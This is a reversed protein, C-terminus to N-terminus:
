KKITVKFVNKKGDTQVNVLYIGESLKDVPVSGSICSSAYVTRGSLDTISVYEANGKIYIMDTAPNPYVIVSGPDTDTNEINEPDDMNVFYTIIEPAAPSYFTGMLIRGNASPTVDGVILSDTVVIHEGSMLDDYEYSFTFFPKLDVFGNTKQKVWEAMDIVDDTGAPIVFSTRVREMYPTAFYVDGNDTIGDTIGDEIYDKISWTGKELDFIVPAAYEGNSRAGNMLPGPDANPDVWNCVSGIYRGNGSAVVSFGDLYKDTLCEYLEQTKQSAIELIANYEAAAENYKAISDPNTIYKQKNWAPNESIIGAKYDELAQNYTASDQKTYYEIANPSVPDPISPIVAGKKFMIDKGLDKLEWTNDDKKTWSVLINLMGTWDIMRGAIVKGDVSCILPDVGQPVRDTFDKEHTPLIDAAYTNDTKLIWICPKRNTTGVYGVIMSGDGNVGRASGTTFGEPLPLRICEGEKIYAPLTSQVEADGVTTVITESGVYIGNDSVGDIYYGGELVNMQKKAFDYMFAVGEMSDGAYMGNRSLTYLSVADESDLKYFAQAFSSCSLAIVGVVLLLKKLM